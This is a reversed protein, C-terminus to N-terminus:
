SSRLFVDPVTEMKQISNEVTHIPEFSGFFVHAYLYHTKILQGILLYIYMLTDICNHVTSYLTRYRSTFGTMKQMGRALRKQQM